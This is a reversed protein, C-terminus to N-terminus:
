EIGRASWCLEAGALSQVEFALSEVRAQCPFGGILAECDRLIRGRPKYTRVDDHIKGAPLCGESM